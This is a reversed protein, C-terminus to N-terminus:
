VVVLAEHQRACIVDRFYRQGGPGWGHAKLALEENNSNESLHALVVRKTQPGVLRSLCHASYENSMHGQDSRNREKVSRPYKCNMLTPEDYNSEFIYYDRNSLMNGYCKSLFGTDTVYVLSGERGDFLFGFSAVGHHNLLIHIRLEGGGDNPLLVVSNAEIRQFFPNNVLHYKGNGEVERVTQQGMYFKISYQRLLERLGVVHDNHSHSILVGEVTCLAVGIDKLSQNLRKLSLGCDILLRHGDIEVFTANGKSGSALVVIRM